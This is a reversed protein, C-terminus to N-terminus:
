APVATVAAARLRAVTLDMAFHREYADRGREAQTNRATRDDLFRRIQAV